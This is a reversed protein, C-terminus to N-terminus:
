IKQHVTVIGQRMRVVPRDRARDGRFFSVSERLEVSASRSRSRQSSSATTIPELPGSTDARGVSNYSEEVGARRTKPRLRANEEVNGEGGEEEGDDGVRGQN